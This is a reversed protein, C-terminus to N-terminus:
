NTHFKMRTSGKHMYVTIKAIPTSATGLVGGVISGIGVAALFATLSVPNGALVAPAISAGGGIAGGAAAGVAANQFYEKLEAHRVVLEVERDGVSAKLIKIIREPEVQHDGLILVVDDGAEMGDLVDEGLTTSWRHKAEITQTAM